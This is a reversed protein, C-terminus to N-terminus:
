GSARGQKMSSIIVKIEKVQEPSYLRMQLQGRKVRRAKPIRGQRDLQYIWSPDRDIARALEAVTLYNTYNGKLYSLDRKIRPLNAM